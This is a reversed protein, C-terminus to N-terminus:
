VSIYCDWAIKQYQRAAAVPDKAGYIGRGVIIIDTGRKLIADEPSIYQQGLQDNSSSLNVGPTFYIFRPDAELREQAVFGMVFDAYQNAAKLTAQIYDDTFLNDKSSMQALLLLGNGKELGVSRLGEIIGPGPLLHANTIEAWDAIRYIGEAYQLRVTNGIDAFKRDEFILFQHQEALQKLKPFFSSDINQLIDIHTKLVCIYPGILDALHLFETPDIVDLSVSLNSQKKHMLQLLKKATPNSCLQSRELFTLKQM